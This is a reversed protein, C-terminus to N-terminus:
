PQEARIPRVGSSDAANGAVIRKSSALVLLSALAMMASLVYLGSQLSGSSQKVWGLVSPGAYGGLGGISNILAIGGAAARGSLFATPLSWFVSLAALVGSSAVSLGAISLFPADIYVATAILGMAGTLGSGAIHWRREGRADSSHAVVVMAATALVYPIASLMGTLLFGGQKLDHVIQPLWFSVGYTGMVLLFYIGTLLWVLPSKATQRFSHFHLSGERERQDESLKRQLIWKEEPTLWNAKAPNDDLYFFSAVGLLVAPAGELLFLWQWGRLKMWGEMAEMIWGSIPGGIIGSIAIATMFLANTRARQRSPFWYTLYLLIGPFFGAEGIGLLFRMAYFSTVSHAWMMGMSIVGWLLIIRSIWIKAGVRHLVINSPIEFFFYGIFFIGAGVGYAADSLGLDTAMQLKAFGINVRDIFAVMYLLFLFPILRASVKRYVAIEFDQTLAVSNASM